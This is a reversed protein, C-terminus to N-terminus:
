PAPEDTSKRGSLEELQREVDELAARLWEAQRRLFGEKVEAPPAYPAAPPVDAWGGLWSPRMWGPLGTAYFMHRYGHGGPHRHWGWGAPYMYGPYPHGTCYGMGRGTRPGMGFPGTCDRRPM